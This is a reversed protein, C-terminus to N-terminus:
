AFFYAANGRASCREYRGLYLLTMDPSTHEEAWLDMTDLSHESERRYSLPHLWSLAAM